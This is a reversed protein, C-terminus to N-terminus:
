AMSGLSQRRLYFILAQSLLLMRTRIWKSKVCIASLRLLELARFGSGSGATIPSSRQSPLQRSPGEVVAM